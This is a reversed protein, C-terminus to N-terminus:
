KMYILTTSLEDERCTLIIEYYVGEWRYVSYDDRIMNLIPDGFVKKVLELTKSIDANASTAYDYVSSYSKRALFMLPRLEKLNPNEERPFGLLLEQFGIDLFTSSIKDQSYEFDTIIFPDLNNLDNDATYYGRYSYNTLTYWDQNLDVNFIKHRSTQGFALQSTLFAALLLINKIKKYSEFM